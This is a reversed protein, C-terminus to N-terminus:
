LPTAQALLPVAEAVARAHEIVVERTSGGVALTGNDRSVGRMEDIRGVDVLHGFVALRLALMPVLSQGGAIVKAEDGLEGLLNVAEDVTRPAHYEFSAPKM